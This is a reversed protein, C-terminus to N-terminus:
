RAPAVARRRRLAALGLLAGVLGAGPARPPTACGCGEGAAPDDGEDVCAPEPEGHCDDDLDNCAEDAGPHVTAQADDCDDANTVAGAVPECSTSGGESVGYGDADADVYYPTADTAGEDISGDCDQDVGDCVESLGTGIAPDDPACDWADPSGDADADPPTGGYIAIRGGHESRGDDDGDGVILDAAGDGNIDGGVTFNSGFWGNGSWGALTQDPSAPLGGAAALYVHIDGDDPAGVLLDDLSDGDLDGLGVDVGFAGGQDESWAEVPGDASGTYVVVRGGGDLPAGVAVDAFPDGDLDGSDIAFGFFTDEGGTLEWATNRGVGTAAGTYIYVTALGYREGGPAGVWLDAYGDGNVDGDMETSYGFGSSDLNGEESWDPRGDDGYFVTLSPYAPRSACPRGITIPDAFSRKSRPEKNAGLAFM